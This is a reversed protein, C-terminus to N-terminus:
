VNPAGTNLTMGAAGSGYPNPGWNLPQAAKQQLLAMMQASQAAIQQQRQQAVENPMAMQQPPAAAPQEKGQNPDALKAISDAASPGKGDTGSPKNFAAIASQVPGAPAVPATTNVTAGPAAGGQAKVYADGQWPATGGAKMQNMAFQDSKQWQAPDRPDIGAKLAQTGLGNRTNLQFDGFSFPQGNQVDVGSAANPNKASWANLGEAGAVGLALKPDLGISQAYSKIFDAHSGTTNLTAGPPTAAAIANVAPGAAVPAPNAYGMAPAGIMAYQQRLKAPDGALQFHNPDSPGITALGFQSALGRLEAQRKPDNAQIDAALGFQHLSSGPAAAMPVRGREPYPLPQGALGAQHNAQLQRQDEQTRGGSIVSADIGKAKAAALLQNMPGAFDPNLDSLDAAV